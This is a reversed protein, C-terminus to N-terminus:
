RRKPLPWPNPRCGHLGKTQQMMVPARKGKSPCRVHQHGLRHGFEHNVLYRRYAAVESGYADAGFAWRKANLVVRNGTQCSVKGYTRLPACLRDTTDPTALYVSVDARKASSVLELRQKGSGIWSRSDSLIAQIETATADPRFPLGKEVRVDYRLLPAGSRGVKPGDVHARVFTGPGREPVKVTATKKSRKAAVKEPM